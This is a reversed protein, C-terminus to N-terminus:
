NFISESKWKESVLYRNVSVMDYLQVVFEAFTFPIDMIIHFKMSSMYVNVSVMDYFQMIFEAFYILYGYHLLTDSYGYIMM